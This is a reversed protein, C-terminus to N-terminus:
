GGEELMIKVQLREGHRIISLVVEQGIAYNDLEHRLDDFSKLIVGNINLTSVLWRRRGLRAM